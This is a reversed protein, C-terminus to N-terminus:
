QPSAPATVWAAMADFDAEIQHIQNRYNPAIDELKNAHYDIVADPDKLLHGTLIAVVEDNPKIEGQEVLQRVGAVSAASAPECGIGAADICAKADMIDQDTVCVVVGGTVDITRKAKVYNTPDGIRIATAVTEAKMTFREDFNHQWSRFFPSAGEAQVVAIRPMRKIIGLQHLEMFAKGFASSNGLNGGPVVVWDPVKWRRQQLMELMITKQGELRFPNVSNLMYVPLKNAAELVLKQAQDFDGCIELCTAGYAIAQAVKGLAIKGVPIAVVGQLGTLRAYSAMSASTNGTSACIVAHAGLHKAQSVGTTMGRDKFSGTPNEGEHKLQLKKHGTFQALWPPSDYLMTNGEGRTVMEEESLEPAILERYRWVGSREWNKFGGLRQDFLETSVRTRLYDLDHQVDLLGGCKPCNYLRANRYYTESCEVCQLWSRANPNM